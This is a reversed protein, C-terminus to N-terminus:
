FPDYDIEHIERAIENLIKSSPNAAVRPLPTFVKNTVKSRTISGRSPHFVEQSPDQAQRASAVLPRSSEAARPNTRGNIRKDSDSHFPSSLKVSRARCYLLLLPFFTVLSSKSEDGELCENDSDADSEVM